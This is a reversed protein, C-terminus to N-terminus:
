SLKPSLTRYNAFEEELHQEEIRSVSEFPSILKAAPIGNKTLIIEDTGLLAIISQLHGEAEEIAIIRTM